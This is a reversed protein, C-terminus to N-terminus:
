RNLEFFNNYDKMIKKIKTVYKRDEAYNNSLLRFYDSESYINDRMNSKQWLQYDNVSMFWHDYVAYNDSSKRLSTTKRVRPYKMGFLNKTRSFLESNFRSSELIAQAFVIDPFKINYLKIILYLKEENLEHLVTPRYIILSNNANIATVLMLVLTVLFIKFNM